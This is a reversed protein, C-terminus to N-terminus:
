EAAMRHRHVPRKARPISTVDRAVPPSALLATGHATGPLVAVVHGAAGYFAPTTVAASLLDDPTGPIRRSRSM